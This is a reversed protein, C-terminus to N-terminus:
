PRDSLQLITQLMQQRQVPDNKPLSLFAIDWDPAILTYRDIIAQVVQNLQDSDADLIYDLIAHLSENM